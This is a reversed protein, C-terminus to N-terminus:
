TWWTCAGTATWGGPVVYRRTTSWRAAWWRPPVVRAVAAMADFTTGDADDVLRTARSRADSRLRNPELQALLAVAAARREAHSAGDRFRAVEHRLWRVTGYPADEGDAPVRYRFDTLLDRM